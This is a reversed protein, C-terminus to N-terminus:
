PSGVHIRALHKNVKILIYRLYVCTFTRFSYFFIEKAIINKKRRYLFKFM